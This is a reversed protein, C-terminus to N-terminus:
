IRDRVARIARENRRRFEPHIRTVAKLVATPPEPLNFRAGILPVLAVYMRGNVFRMAISKVPSGVRDMGAEFGRSAGSEMIDRVMRSCDPSFHTTDLEWSGPGPAKWSVAQTSAAATM